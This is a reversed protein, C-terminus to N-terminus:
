KPLDKMFMFRVYVCKDGEEEAAKWASKLHLGMVADRTGGSMEVLIDEKDELHKDDVTVHDVLHWKPGPSPRMMAPQAIGKILWFFGEMISTYGRDICQDYEFLRAAFEDGQPVGKKYLAQAFRNKLSELVPISVIGAQLEKLENMLDIELQSLEAYGTIKRHQNEM